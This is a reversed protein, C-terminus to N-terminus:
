RLLLCALAVLYATMGGQFLVNVLRRAFGPRAQIRWWRADRVRARPLAAPDPDTGSCWRHLEILGLVFWVPALVVIGLIVLLRFLVGWLV